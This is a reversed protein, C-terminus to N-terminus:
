RVLEDAGVYIQPTKQTGDERNVPWLKTHKLSGQRTSAMSRCKKGVSGKHM